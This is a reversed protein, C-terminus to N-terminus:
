VQTSVANSERFQKVQNTIDQEWGCQRCKLFFMGGLVQDTYDEIFLDGTLCYPCSKMFIKMM